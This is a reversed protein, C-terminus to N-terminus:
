PLKNPEQYSKGIAIRINWYIDDARNKQERAYDEITKDYSVASTSHIDRMKNIYWRIYHRKDM